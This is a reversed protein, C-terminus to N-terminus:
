LGGTPTGHLAIPNPLVPSLVFQEGPGLTLVSADCRSALGVPGHGEIPIVTYGKEGGLIVRYAIPDGAAAQVIAVLYPTPPPNSTLADFIYPAPAVSGWRPGCNPASGILYGPVPAGPQQGDACAAVPPIDPRAVVCPVDVAHVLAKVEEPDSNAIAALLKNIAPVQTETTLAYAWPTANEIGKHTEPDWTIAAGSSSDFYTLLGAVQQITLSTLASDVRIQYLGSPEVWLAGVASSHDPKLIVGPGPFLDTRTVEQGTGQVAVPRDYQRSVTLSIAPGAAGSATPVDYEIHGTSDAGASGVQNFGSDAPLNLWYMKSPATATATVICSPRPEGGELVLFGNVLRGSDCTRGDIVNDRTPSASATTSRDPLNLLLLAVGLGAAAGVAGGALLWRLAPAFVMRTVARAVRTRVSQRTRWWAGAEERSDVNLKTFLERLHWKAGDLSIHLAEAIEFNTKGQAVLELVERQRATLKVDPSTPARTM